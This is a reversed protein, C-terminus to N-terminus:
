ERVPVEVGAKAIILYGCTTEKFDFGDLQDTVRVRLQPSSSRSTHQAGAAKM